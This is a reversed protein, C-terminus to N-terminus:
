PTVATSNPTRPGNSSEGVADPHRESPRLLPQHEPEERGPAPPDHREVLQDVPEPGVTRLGPGALRHLDVDGPQPPREAVLASAM